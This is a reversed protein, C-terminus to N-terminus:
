LYYRQDLWVRLETETAFTHTRLDVPDYATFTPKGARDRSITIQPDRAFHTVLDHLLRRLWAPQWQGLLPSAELAILSPLATKM